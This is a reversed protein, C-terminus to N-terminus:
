VSPYTVANQNLMPCDHYLYANEHNCSTYILRDLFRSVEHFKRTVGAVVIEDRKERACVRQGEGCHYAYSMSQGIMVDM